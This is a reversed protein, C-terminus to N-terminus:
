LGSRSHPYRTYGQQGATSFSNSHGSMAMAQPRNGDEENEEENPDAQLRKQRRMEIDMKGHHIAAMWDRQLYRRPTEM